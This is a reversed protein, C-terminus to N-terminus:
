VPKFNKVSLTSQICKKWISIVKNFVYQFHELNKWLDWWISGIIISQRLSASKPLFICSDKFNHPNDHWFCLLINKIEKIPTWMYRQFSFWFRITKGVKGASPPPSFFLFLVYWRLKHRVTKTRPRYFSYPSLNNQECFWKHKREIKTEISKWKALYRRCINSAVKTWPTTM